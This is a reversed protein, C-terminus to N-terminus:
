YAGGNKLPCWNPIRKGTVRHRWHYTDERRAGRAGPAHQSAKDHSCVPKAGGPTFAGSHSAYRCDSCGNIEITIKM